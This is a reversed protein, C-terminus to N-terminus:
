NKETLRNNRDVILTILNLIMLPMAMKGEFVTSQM